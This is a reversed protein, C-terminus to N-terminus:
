EHASFIFGVDLQLVGTQGQEVGHWILGELLERYINLWDHMTHATVKVVNGDLMAISFRYIDGRLPEHHISQIL